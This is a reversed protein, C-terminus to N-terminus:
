NVIFYIVYVLVVKSLLVWYNHIYYQYYLQFGHSLVMSTNVHLPNYILVSKYDHCLVQLIWYAISIEVETLLCSGRTEAEGSHGKGTQGCRFKSILILSLFSIKLVIPLDFKHSSSCGSPYINYSAHLRSQTVARDNKWSVVVCLLLTCWVTEYLARMKSWDFRSFKQNFM